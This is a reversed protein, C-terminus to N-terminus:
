SRQYMKKSDLLSFYHHQHLSTSFQIYCIDHMWSFTQCVYQACSRVYPMASNHKPISGRCFMLSNHFIKSCFFDWRVTQRVKLDFRSSRLSSSLFHLAFLFCKYIKLSYWIAKKLGWVHVRPFMHEIDDSDKFLLAVFCRAVVVANEPACV